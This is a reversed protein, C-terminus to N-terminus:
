QAKKQELSFFAGHSETDICRNVEVTVHVLEEHVGLLQRVADPDVGAPADLAVICTYRAKGVRWVHLNSIQAAFPARVVAHDELHEFAMHAGMQTLARGATLGTIGTLGM